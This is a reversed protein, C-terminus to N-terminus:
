NNPNCGRGVRKLAEPINLDGSIKSWRDKPKLTKYKHHLSKAVRHGGQAAEHLYNDAREANEVADCVQVSSQVTQTGYLMALNWNADANQQHAATELWSLAFDTNQNVGLGGAYMIGLVNQSAVDKAIHAAGCILLVTQEATLADKKSFWLADQFKRIAMRTEVTHANNIPGGYHGLARLAQKKQKMKISEGMANNEYDRSIRALSKDSYECPMSQFQIRNAALITAQAGVGSGIEIAQLYSERAGKWNELASDADGLELYYRAHQAASEVEYAEICKGQVMPVCPGGEALEVRPQHFDVVDPIYIPGDPPLPTWFIRILWIIVAISFLTLLLKILFFWFQMGRQTSGKPLEDCPTSPHITHCRVARLVPPECNVNAIAVAKSAAGGSYDEPFDLKQPNHDQRSLFCETQQQDCWLDNHSDRIHQASACYKRNLPNNFSM